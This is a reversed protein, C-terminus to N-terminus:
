SRPSISTSSIVTTGLALSYSSTTREPFGNLNAINEQRLQTTKENIERFFLELPDLNVTFLPSFVKRALKRAAALLESLTGLLDHPEFGEDEQFAKLDKRCNRLNSLAEFSYLYCKPWYLSPHLPDYVVELYHLAKILGSTNIGFSYDVLELAALAQDRIEPYYNRRKEIELLDLSQDYLKSFKFHTDLPIVFNRPLHSAKPLELPSKDGIKQCTEPVLESISAALYKILDDPYYFGPQFTVRLAPAPIQAFALEIGKEKLQEDLFKLDIQELPLEVLVVNSRTALTKRGLFALEKSLKIAAQCCHFAEYRLGWLGKHEIEALANNLTDPDITTAAFYDRRNFYSVSLSDSSNEHREGLSYHFTDALAERLKQDENAHTLFIGSLGKAELSKGWGTVLFKVAPSQLLKKLRQKSEPFYGGDPYELDPCLAPVKALSADVCIPINNELCISEVQSSIGEIHMDDTRGLTALVLCPNETEIKKLLINQDICANSDLPVLIIPQRVYTQWDSLSIHAGESAIIPFSSIVKNPSISEKYKAAAVAVSWLAIQGSVVLFRLEADAADIGLVFESYALYRRKAFDSRSHVLNRNAYKRKIIDNSDSFHGSYQDFHLEQPTEIKHPWPNLSSFKDFDPLAADPNLSAKNLTSSTPKDGPGQIIETM